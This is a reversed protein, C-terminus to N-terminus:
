APLRGGRGRPGALALLSLGTLAAALGWAWAPTTRSPYYQGIVSLGAAGTAPGDYLWKSRQWDLGADAGISALPSLAVVTEARGRSGPGGANWEVFPDAVFLLGAMAAVAAAGAFSAHADPAGATRLLAATGFAAVAAGGVVAAGGAASPLGAAAAGLWAAATATLAAFAGRRLRSVVPADKADWAAGAVCALGFLAFSACAARQPPPVDLLRTAAGVAAGCALAAGAATLARM